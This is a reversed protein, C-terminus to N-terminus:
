EFIERLPREYRGKIAAIVPRDDRASFVHLL